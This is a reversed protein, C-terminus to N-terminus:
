YAVFWEGDDNTPDALFAEIQAIAQEATSATEIEYVCVVLSIDQERSYFSTDTSSGNFRQRLHTLLREIQEVTMELSQQHTKKEGITNITVHKMPQLPSHTQLAPLDAHDHM